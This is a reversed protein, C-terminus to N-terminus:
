NGAACRQKRFLINFFVDFQRLGNDPFTIEENEAGVSLGHDLRSDTVAVQNHDSLLIVRFGTLDYDRQDIIIGCRELAIIRAAVATHFKDRFIILELRLRNIKGNLIEGNLSDRDLYDLVKVLNIYFGPIGAM